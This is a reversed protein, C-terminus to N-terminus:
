PRPLPEARLPQKPPRHPSVHRTGWGRGACARSAYRRHRGRRDPTLVHRGCGCACSRWIAERGRNGM